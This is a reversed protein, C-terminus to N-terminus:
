WAGSVSSAKRSLRQSIGVRRGGTVVAVVVGLGGRPVIRYASCFEKNRHRFLTNNRALRSVELSVVIGVRGLGVQTALEAFGSRGATSAGSLGLDDDIVRIASRPWGLSVARAVLDYQRAPRRRRGPRSSGTLHSALWEQVRPRFNVDSETTSMLWVALLRSSRPVAM